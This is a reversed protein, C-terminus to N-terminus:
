DPTDKKSHLVEFFDAFVRLYFGCLEDYLAPCEQNEILNEVAYYIESCSFSYSDIGESDYMERLLRVIKYCDDKPNYDQESDDM